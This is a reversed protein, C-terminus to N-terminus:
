QTAGAAVRRYICSRPLFHKVKEAELAQKHKAQELLQTVNLPKPAADYGMNATEEEEEEEEEEGESDDDGDDDDDDDPADPDSNISLDDDDNLKAEDVNFDSDDSSEGLDLEALDVLAAKSPKVKRKGPERDVSLPSPGCM